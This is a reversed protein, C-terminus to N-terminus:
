LGNVAERLGVKQKENKQKGMKWLLIWLKQKSLM